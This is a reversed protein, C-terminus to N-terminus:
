ALAGAALALAGHFAPTLSDQRASACFQPPVAAVRAPLDAYKGIDSALRALMPAEGSVLLLKPSGQLLPALAHLLTATPQDLASWDLHRPWQGPLEFWTEDLDVHLVGADPAQNARRLFAAIRTERLAIAGARLHLSNALACRDEIDVACPFMAQVGVEGVGALAQDALWYHAVREDHSQPHRLVMEAQVQALRQVQSAAAPLTLAAAAVAHLSLATDLVGADIRCQNLMARTASCLLDLDTIRGRECIVDVFRHEALHAVHLASRRRRLVALRLHRAGVDLGLRQRRAALSIFFRHSFHLM